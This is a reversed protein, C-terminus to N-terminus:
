ANTIFIYIRLFYLSYSFIPHQKSSAIKRYKRKLVKWNIESPTFSTNKLSFERFKKFIFHTGWPKLQKNKSYLFIPHIKKGWRKNIDLNPTEMKFFFRSLSIIKSGSFFFFFLFRGKGRTAFPNVLGMELLFNGFGDKKGGGFNQGM